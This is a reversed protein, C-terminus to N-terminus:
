GGAIPDLLLVEEHSRDVPGDIVEGTKGDFKRGHAEQEYQEIVRNVETMDATKPEWELLVTDGSGDYRRLTAKM